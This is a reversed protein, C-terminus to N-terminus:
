NDNKRGKYNKCTRRNNAQEKRTAWRCNEPCYGGDNDIRDLTLNDKYGNNIAWVYFNILTKWENCVSIGRGGYYKYYPYKRKYCRYLMNKWEFYIRKKYLGHKKNSLGQLKAAYRQLCGCSRKHGSKLERPTCLTYKGCECKCLFYRKCFSRGSKFRGFESHDFRIVTLKSYVDGINLGYM